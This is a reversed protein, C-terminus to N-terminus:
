ETYDALTRTGSTSSVVNDDHGILGSKRLSVLIESRVINSNKKYM